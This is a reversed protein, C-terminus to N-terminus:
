SIEIIGSKKVKQTFKKQRKKTQFIKKFHHIYSTRWRKQTMKEYKFDM